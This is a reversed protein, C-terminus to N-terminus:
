FSAEINHGSGRHEDNQKGEYERQYEAKPNQLATGYEELMTPDPEAALAERTQFKSRHDLITVFHQAAM